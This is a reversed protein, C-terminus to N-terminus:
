TSPRCSGREIIIAPIVMKKFRTVPTKKEILSLLLKIARGAIDENKLSVTTLPVTGMPENSGVDYGLLSIDEPIRINLACLSKALSRALADESVYLASPWQSRPRQALQMAIEIGGHEHDNTIFIDEKKLPLDFERFLDQLLRLRHQFMGGRAGKMGAATVVAIRRHGLATLHELGLQLAKKMDIGVQHCPISAGVDHVLGLMVTPINADHLLQATGQLSLDFSDPAWLVGEVRNECFQQMGKREREMNWWSFHVSLTYGAAEGVRQFEELPAAFFRSMETLMVGIVRTAGGSLSRALQNPVYGIKTAAAEIRERTEPRIRPDKRLALSVTSFDVGVERAVDMITARKKLSPSLKDTREVAANTKAPAPQPRKRAPAKKIPTKQSPM